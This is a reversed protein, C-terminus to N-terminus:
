EQKLAAAPDVLAARRAPLYGASAAVVVLMLATSVLTMPDRPTLGFMLSSVFQGSWLALPIGAAIGLMTLVISQKLVMWLVQTHRAGMAMRVAIEVRRRSAGYSITGYLGVCALTLALLGFASTLRAFLREQWVSDGIQGRMSDMEIIALNPDIAQVTARVSAVLASPDGAARVYLYLGKLALQSATYPVYATRPFNGRVRSYKANSVIGVIEYDNQSDGKVGFNFRRGLPNAGDFFYRALADNIVAVRRRARIDTSAIDRGALVRLGLTEAIDPGVANSQVQMGSSKPQEGAITIAGSSVWGSFLRNRTATVREVGPITALRDLIEGYLASLRDGAYGNQSADVGFVLLREEELGLAERHLNSLTRIFLGAGTLLVLSLAVQIAVLSTSWVRYPSRDSVTGSSSQKLAPLVDVRTAVVAPVLGFLLATVASVAAAFGLVGPDIQGDLLPRREAPLLYLLARSTWGACLVGLVGGTGAMLLSETLLQRVLRQRPAGLSIRLAFERQRSLARALLLVAVNACAIMLVLAVMAMLVYLPREFERRALDLGGAGEEFDLHMGRDRTALPLAEAIFRQFIADAATRAQRDDTRDGLRAMVQVWWYDRSAVLRPIDDPRTGWPALEPADLMPIWVDPMRGPQVGFFARPAVGIVEFPVNNIAITRGVISDDGGFWRTWCGHSIVVVRSSRREDEDDILRGLAPAVGLGRFYAGSVMEGDVRGATGGSALTTNERGMGLPAFAFVSSFESASTLEHVLPFALSRSSSRWVTDRPGGAGSQNLGPPWADAGWYFLVLREPQQVPLTKLLVARILSFIATNAGIGLALSIAIAGALGPSRAMNRLAFRIDRFLGDM